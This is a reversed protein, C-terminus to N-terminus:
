QTTRRRSLGDLRDGSKPRGTVNRGDRTVYVVKPKSPGSQVVVPTECVWTVKRELGGSVVRKCVPKGAEPKTAMKTTMQAEAKTAKAATKAAPKATPKTEAAAPGAVLLLALAIAARM